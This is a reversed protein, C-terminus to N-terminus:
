EAVGELEPPGDPQEQTMASSPSIMRERLSAPTDLPGPVLLPKGEFGFQFTETCDEARVSGFLREVVAYDPHPRVGHDASWRVLDHLLKRAYSPEVPGIPEAMRAGEMVMAFMDADYERFFADKVGLMQTDLLFNAMLLRQPSAGRVLYMTGLGLEFLSESLLCHQIPLEAASRIRGSLSNAFQDAKRKEAVIAKRRKAKAARRAAINAGM